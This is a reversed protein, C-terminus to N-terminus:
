NITYQKFLEECLIGSCRLFSFFFFSKLFFGHHSNHGSSSHTGSKCFFWEVGKFLWFGYHSHYLLWKYCWPMSIWKDILPQLSLSFFLNTNIQKNCNMYFQVHLCDEAMNVTVSNISVYICCVRWFFSRENSGMSCCSQTIWRRLGSM